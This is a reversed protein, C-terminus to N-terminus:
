NGDKTVFQVEFFMDDEVRLATLFYDRNYRENVNKVRKAILKETNMVSKEMKPSIDRTLENVM